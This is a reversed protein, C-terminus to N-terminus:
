KAELILQDKSRKISCICKTVYKKGRKSSNRPYKEGSELKGIKSVVDLIDSRDNTDISEYTRNVFKLILYKLWNEMLCALDGEELIVFCEKFMTCISDSIKKHALLYEIRILKMKALFYSVKCTKASKSFHGLFQSLWLSSM